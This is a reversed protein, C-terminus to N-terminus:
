PKADAAPSTRASPEDSWLQVKIYADVRQHQHGIYGDPGNPAAADPLGYSAVLDELKRSAISAALM